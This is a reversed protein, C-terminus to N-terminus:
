KLWSSECGRKWDDFLCLYIQVHSTGWTDCIIEFIHDSLAWETNDTFNRSAFDAQENDKGPIYSAVLWLERHECFDCIENAIKQCESSKSGGMRNIYAVVTTNDSRVLIKSGKHETFFSKLEM